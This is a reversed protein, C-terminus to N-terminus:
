SRRRTAKADREHNHSARVPAYLGRWERSRPITKHGVDFHAAGQTVELGGAVPDKRDALLHSLVQEGAEPAGLADEGADDTVVVADNGLDLVGDEGTM